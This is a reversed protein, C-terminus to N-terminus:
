RSRAARVLSIALAGVAALPLVVGALAALHTGLSLWAVIALAVVVVVFIEPTDGVLFDWWFRGFARVAGGLRGPRM